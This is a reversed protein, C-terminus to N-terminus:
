PTLHKQTQDRKRQERRQAALRMNAKAEESHPKRKKGSLTKSIKAKTEESLVHGMKSESNARRHEDTHKRGKGADSIKKRSEESFVQGKTTSGYTNYVCHLFRYHTIWFNEHDVLEEKTKINDQLIILEFADKGYKRIDSYFESGCSNLGKKAYYKHKTWRSVASVTTAGVYIMGNETCKIGYIM